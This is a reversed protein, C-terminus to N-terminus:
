STRLELDGGGTQLRSGGEGDEEHMSQWSIICYTYQHVPRFQDLRRCTATYSGTDHPQMIM